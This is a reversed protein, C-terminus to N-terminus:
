GATVQYIWKSTGIPMKICELIFEQNRWWVGDIYITVGGAPSALFMSDDRGKCKTECAM